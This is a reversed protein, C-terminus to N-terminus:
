KQEMFCNHLLRPYGCHVVGHLIFFESQRHCVIFKSNSATGRLKADDEKPRHM